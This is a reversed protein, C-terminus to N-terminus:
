VLGQALMADAIKRFGAINAGIVLNGPSGFEEAAETASIYISQMIYKLHEDVEQRSWTLHQANQAMELGSVAVGGANAAKAPGFLIKNNIFIQVGEPETPMNAGEALLYCGQECLQNADAARIENQTACPFACDCKISWPNTGERYEVGYKDAYEEI